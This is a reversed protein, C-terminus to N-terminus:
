RREAQVGCVPCRLSTGEPSTPHLQSGSLRFEHFLACETEFAARSSASYDFKFLSDFGLYDLLLARIDSDSRGVLNVCFRKHADARGLAYVGASRRSVLADVDDLSLRYPGQLQAGTTTM